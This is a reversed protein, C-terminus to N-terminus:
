KGKGRMGYGALIGSFMLWFGFGALKMWWEPLFLIGIGTLIFGITILFRIFKKMDKREKIWKQEENMKRIIGKECKYGFESWLISM